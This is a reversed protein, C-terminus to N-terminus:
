GTEAAAQTATKDQRDLYHGIAGGALGELLGGVVVGTTNHAILGRLIAGGATGAGAGLTTRPHERATERATECGSLGLAAALVIVIFTAGYPM